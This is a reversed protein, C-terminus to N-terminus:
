SVNPPSQGGPAGPEPALSDEFEDIYAELVEESVEGCPLSRQWSTLVFHRDDSFFSRDWPMAIFRADTGEAFKRLKAVEAAPLQPDYWGVVFGHELNHVAREIVPKSGQAHFRPEAALPEGHHDGSTPPADDYDVPNPVHESGRLRENRVGTCNAERQADTAAAVYGPASTRKREAAEKRDLYLPIAILIAAVLLASGFIAITKRREQARQQRQLAELQARRSTGSPKKPPTAAM